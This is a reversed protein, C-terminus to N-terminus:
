AEKRSKAWAKLNVGGPFVSVVTGTLSFNSNGGAQQSTTGATIPAQWIDVLDRMLRAGQPGQAVRCAHFEVFGFDILLPGLKELIPRLIRVVEPTLVTLQAIPNIGPILSRKGASIAALGPAGHGHFRIALLNRQGKARSIIDNVVQTVGNSMAGIEIATPFSPLVLEAVEPDTVDVSEVVQLGHERVMREWVVIGATAGTASTRLVEAHFAKVAGQTKPGYSGDVGLEIGQPKFRNLLIQLAVVRPNRDNLSCLFMACTYEWRWFLGMEKDADM